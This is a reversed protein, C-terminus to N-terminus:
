DAFLTLETKKDIEYKTRGQRVSDTNDTNIYPCKIPTDRNRQRAKEATTDRDRRNSKTYAEFHPM